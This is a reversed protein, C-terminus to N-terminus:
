GGFQRLHHNLHKEILCGWDKKGLKGFLPHTATVTEKELVQHLAELLLKRESLFSGLQPKTIAPDLTPATAAGKPWPIIHIALYRVIIYRFPTSLVKVENPPHLVFAL